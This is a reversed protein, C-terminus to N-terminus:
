GGPGRAQTGGAATYANILEDLDNTHQGYDAGPLSAWINSCLRIAEEICGRQVAGMADQERIQQLAYRDQSLPSFDPLHLLTRYYPWYTNLIQYRGAATSYVGPAYEIAQDDTPLPHDSYDDFLNLDGPLSGVLVNYGDDSAALMDPGIESYALMDLFARVNREAAVRPANHIWWVDAPQTTTM